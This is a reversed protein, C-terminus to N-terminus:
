ARRRGAFWALLLAAAALMPWASGTSCPAFSCGGGDIEPYCGLHTVLPAYVDCVGHVDDDSLDRKSTEGPSSAYPYMTANVIIAPLDPDNCDPIPQGKDDLPPTATAHAWCTHALGQVHGLEHTLTNELDALQTNDRPVANAPDTTFTYDVNNLEVDADLITGDGPRGPTNVYMVTTLGIASPDHPPHGPRRWEDNRFIIAPLGDPAVDLIKRAPQMSLTLGGCTSTRKTWNDIARQLTAAVMPLPVDKSGRQDITVVVCRENWQVPVGSTETTTRVYALAPLASALTVCFTAAAALRLISRMM